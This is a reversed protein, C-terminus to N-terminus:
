SCLRVSERGSHACVLVHPYPQRASHTGHRIQSKASKFANASDLAQDVASRSANHKDFITNEFRHLALAAYTANLQDAEGDSHHGVLDTVIKLKRELESLKLDCQAEPTLTPEPLSALSSPAGASVCVTCM